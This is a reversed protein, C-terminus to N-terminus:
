SESVHPSPIFSYSMQVVYMDSDRALGDWWVRYVAPSCNRAYYVATRYNYRGVQGSVCVTRVCAWGGGGREM